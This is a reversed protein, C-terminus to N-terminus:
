IVSTPLDQLCRKDLLCKPADDLFHFINYAGTASFSNSELSRDFADMRDFRVNDVHPDRAKQNALEIMGASLDSGHFRQVHPASDLSIEGSACDFDLEGDSRTLLPRTKDITKMAQGDVGTLRPYMCWCLSGRCGRLVKGFQEMLKPTLRRIDLSLSHSERDGAPFMRSKPSTM